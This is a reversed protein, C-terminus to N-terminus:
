ALIGCSLAQAYAHGTKLANIVQDTKNLEGQGLYFYHYACELSAQKFVNDVRIGIGTMASLVVDTNSSFADDPITVGGDLSKESFNKTQMFNPGVGLDIILHYRENPFNFLAKATAYIPLHTVEYSYSLNNFLEEQTVNGKVTTAAFYFADIGYEMTVKNFHQGNFFYGLGLLVNQESNNTVSFDDGILDQINIHQAKGQNSVNFAGLQFFVKGQTTSDALASFASTMGCLSTLILFQKIADMRLKM